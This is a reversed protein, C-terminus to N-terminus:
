KREGCTGYCICPKVWGGHWQSYLIWLLLSPSGFYTGLLLILCSPITKNVSFTFENSARLFHYFKNKWFSMYILLIRSLGFHFSILLITNSLVHESTLINTISKIFTISLIYWTNRSFTISFQYPTHGKRDM